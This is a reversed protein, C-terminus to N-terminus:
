NAGDRLAELAARAVGHEPVACYLDVPCHRQLMVRLAAALADRQQQLVLCQDTLSRRWSMADDRQHQVEALREADTM